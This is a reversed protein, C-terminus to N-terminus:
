TFCLHPSKLCKMTSVGYVNTFMDTQRIGLFFFHSYRQFKNLVCSVCINVHRGIENESLSFANRSTKQATTSYSLDVIIEGKIDLSSM